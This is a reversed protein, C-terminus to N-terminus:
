DRLPYKRFIFAGALVLIGAAPGVLIVGLPQARTSGFIAFLTTAVVPGVGEAVKTLMGEVGNYMGERRYKTLKEDHDIIDALIPRCLVFLTAVPFTACAYILYAQVTPTGFPLKGVLASAAM